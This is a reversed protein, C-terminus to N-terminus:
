IIEVKRRRWGRMRIGWEIIQKWDEELWIIISGWSWRSEMGWMLRWNQRRRDNGGEQLQEDTNWRETKTWRLSCNIIFSVFRGQASARAARHSPACCPNFQALIKCPQTRACHGGSLWWPPAWWPQLWKWSHICKKGVANQRWLICYFDHVMITLLLVAASSIFHLFRTELDAGEKTLYIVLITQVSLLCLLSFFPDSVSMPVENQWM